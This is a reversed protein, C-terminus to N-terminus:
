IFNLGKIMKKSLVNLGTANSGKIIIYDNNNIYESYAADYVLLINSPISKHLRIVEQKPIFTGTPNNANALFILKTKKNIKSLINDVNATFNIDKAVIGKAGAVSIAQPFQLFGFETYIAEDSTDLFAQTIISILEDSGNGLIIKRKDEISEM